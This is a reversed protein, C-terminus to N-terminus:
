PIVLTEADALRRITGFGHAEEDWKIGHVPVSMKPCIATAFARLNAASAHGSTHIYAIEAGGAQCWELVEKIDPESLYGRWMSFNFADEATPAVGARQYDALLGRRVMAVYRGEVLRKASIGHPVMREIFAERGIKRYYNRLKRTVVVKLNPFGARPLRTGESIRDLVDATYLDIALTRGTRKAARYLTVTRDINQASWAVFVRGNTRKFLDVFKWELERESAVPKDSGLNTGETLLVDINPPPNAMLRDVLVSKRGHRRFDGPYLFRKGAGAVGLM